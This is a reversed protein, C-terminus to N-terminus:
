FSKNKKQIVHALLGLKYVDFLFLHPRGSQLQILLFPKIKKFFWTFAGLLRCKKLIKYVWYLSSSFSSNNTNQLDVMNVIAQETKVLFSTVPELGVHLVPNNLHQVPINAKELYLGWLTDEHGYTQVVEPLPNALYLTRSVFLNNVQLKKYPQQQRIAAPRQERHRGYHWHLRYTTEPAWSPYETGGIFVSFLDAAQLYNIIFQETVLCSDNDLFLLYSYKARMALKNRIAARSINTPLEEYIINKLFKLKRNSKKFFDNSADDLCIIEFSIAAQQCQDLLKQVLATVDFNFIPIM